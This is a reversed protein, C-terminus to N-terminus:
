SNESEKTLYKNNLYLPFIGSYKGLISKYKEWQVPHMSKQKIVWLTPFSFFFFHPLNLLLDVKEQPPAPM